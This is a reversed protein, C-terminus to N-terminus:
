RARDWCLNPALSVLCCWCIPSSAACRANATAPSSTSCGPSSGAWCDAKWCGPRASWSRSACATTRPLSLFLGQSRLAISLGRYARAADRYADIRKRRSTAKAVAQEDGLRSPWTAIRTLTVGQWDIDRLHTATDLKAGALRTAKDLVAQTLYAGRLNAGSLNAGALTALLLSASSLNALSLNTGSLDAQYLDAGSLTARRLRASRVNAHSLNAGSLTAYRLDAGRLNPHQKGKKPIGHAVSWGRERLIWQLEGLTRIPVGQYPPKGAAVNAEYAARLNAQREPTPESTDPGSRNATTATATPTTQQESMPCEKQQVGLRQEGM